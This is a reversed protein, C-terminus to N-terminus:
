GVAVVGAVCDVIRGLEADTLDNSMPLSLIRGALDDTVALSHAQQCDRYARSRHLPPSFYTRMEVAGRAAAALAMNRASSTAMAVSVFQTSSREAGRQFVAGTDALADRMRAAISRRAALTSALRDLGALAVAAHWEDLKGNLGVEIPHHDEDLGHNLFVRVRRATRDDRLAVLGGEGVPMPKTAHMSFVAADAVAVDGQADPGLGSASDVILPVRAEDAVRRWARAQDAPVPTGFTACALIAAVRGARERMARELADPCLHWGHEDVDCFVPEFGAWIASAACAAFTFSPLLV